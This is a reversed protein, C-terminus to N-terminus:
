PLITISDVPTIIVNSDYLVNRSIWSGTALTTTCFLNVTSPASPSDVSIALPMSGLISEYSSPVGFTRLQATSSDTPGNLRCAIQGNDTNVEGSVGLTARVLWRGAPLSISRITQPLGNGATLATGTIRAEQVAQANQTAAARLAEFNANVQTADAITGNTFTYPLGLARASLPIGVAVLLLMATRNRRKAFLVGIVTFCGALLVMSWPPMAPVAVSNGWIMSGWAQGWM